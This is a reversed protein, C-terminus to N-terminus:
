KMDKNILDILYANISKFGKDISRSLIRKKFEKDVKCAITTLGRRKDYEISAKIQSKATKNNDKM